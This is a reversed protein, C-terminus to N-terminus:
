IKDIQQKMFLIIQFVSLGLWLGINGGVLSLMVLFDFKLQVEIDEEYETPFALVIQSRNPLVMNYSKKVTFKTFLCPKPCPSNIGYMLITKSQLCFKTTNVTKLVTETNTVTTYDDTLWIPTINRIGERAMEEKLERDM